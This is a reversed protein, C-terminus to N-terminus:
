ELTKTEFYKTIRRTMKKQLAYLKKKDWGIQIVMDDFSDCEDLALAYLQLEEDDQSCAEIAEKFRKYIDNEEDDNDEIIAPIKNSETPNEHFKKTKYREVNTSILSGIIRKLQDLLSYKEFQWKWDLGFLKSISEDIYYDIPNVGLNQESHAGFITRRKLKFLVFITLKDIIEKWEKESVANLKQLIEEEREM